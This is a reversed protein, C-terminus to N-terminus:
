ENLYVRPVRPSIGCVLEYSITGALGALESVEARGLSPLDGYSDLLGRALQLASTGRRGRGLLTALLGVDTLAERGRGLM